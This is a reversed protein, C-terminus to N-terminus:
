RSHRTRRTTSSARRATRATMTRLAPAARKCAMLVGEGRAPSPNNSSPPPDDRLPAYYNTSHTPNPPQLYDPRKVVHHKAPHHKTFYDARNSSGRKWYVIFQGQRVRDRIWYFRMDMAKSRKQKVSANAIGTATSNDTVMPTPPQKHGLEELTIREPVAEKGNHFLGGLEAEAASSLVERLIKCPVNIAGNM